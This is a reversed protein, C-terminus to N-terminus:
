YFLLVHTILKGSVHKFSMKGELLTRAQVTYVLLKVECLYSGSDSKMLASIKLTGGNEVKMREEEWAGGIRRWSIQAQATALCNLSLQEGIFKIVRTPPKTIFKPPSWVFLSTIATAHGLQNRATCEYPGTDNREAALLALSGENHIARNRPLTGTLKRWTVVPAPFGSVHCQPLTVNQGQKAHTPGPSLRVRPPVVVSSIIIHKFELILVCWRPLPPDWDRYVNM